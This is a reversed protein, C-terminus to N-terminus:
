FQGDSKGHAAPTAWSKGTRLGTEMRTRKACSKRGNGGSDNSTGALRHPGDEAM